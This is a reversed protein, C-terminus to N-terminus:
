EGNTVGQVFARAVRLQRTEGVSVDVACGRPSVVDGLVAFLESDHHPGVSPRLVRALEFSYSVWWREQERDARELRAVSWTDCHNSSTVRGFPAQTGNSGACALDSLTTADDDGSQCQPYIRGCMCSANVLGSLCPGDHGM